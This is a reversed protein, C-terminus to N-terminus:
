EATLRKRNKSKPYKKKLAAIYATADEFDALKWDVDPRLFLVGTHREEGITHGALSAELHGPAAALIESCDDNGCYCITIM